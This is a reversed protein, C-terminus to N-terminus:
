TLVRFSRQRHKIYDIWLFGLFYVVWVGVGLAALLGCWNKVSVYGLGWGTVAPGTLEGASMALVEIASLKDLLKDDNVLGLHSSAVEIMSPMIIVFLSGSCLPLLSWGVLVSIVSEPFIIPGILTLGLIGVFLGTCNVLLKSMNEITHSLIVCIVLYGLGTLAYSSVVWTDSLGYSQLHTPFFVMIGGTSFMFYMLPLQTLLISPKSALSFFGKEKNLVRYPRDPGMILYITLGFFLFFGSVTFFTGAAGLLVYLGAGAMPGLLFGLGVCSENMGVYKFVKDPYDTAIVANEVTFMAGAAAGTLLRSVINAVLFGKESMYVSIGASVFGGSTMLYAGLLTNRRGLKYLLVGILPSIMLSGAPFVSFIVGVEDSSVAKEAALLPLFPTLLGYTMMIVTTTFYLSLLRRDVM